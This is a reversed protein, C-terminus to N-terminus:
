QKASTSVSIAQQNTIVYDVSCDHPETPIDMILQFDFCLGILPCQLSPILRDYYGRGRGLRHGSADYAMAPIIAIDISAYDTFLPGTPEMIHFAGEALSDPGKYIRVELDNEVVKPLLITRKNDGQNWIHDLLRKTDVEDPLSNYLLFTRAKKYPELKELLTVASLSFQELKDATYQKKRSKILSRLEQKNM